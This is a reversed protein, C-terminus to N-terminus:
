AAIMRYHDKCKQLIGLMQSKSLTEKIAFFIETIIGFKLPLFKSEFFKGITIFFQVSQSIITTSSAEESSETLYTAFFKGRTLIKVFSRFRPKAFVAFLPTSSDFPSNTAIILESTAGLFFEM